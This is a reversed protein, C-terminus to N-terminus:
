FDLMNFLESSYGPSPIVPTSLLASPSFTFPSNCSYNGTVGSGAFNSNGGPGNFVPSLDNLITLCSPDFPFPSFFGPSVPPLISPMPSLIGPPPVQGILGPAPGAHPDFGPDAGISYPFGDLCDDIIDIIPNRIPRPSPTVSKEITALRAAPSTASPGADSNQGTLRQVLSMFDGPKTHIVKPSADYIIVPRRRADSAHPPPPDSSTTAHHPAAPHPHPPPKRIKVSDKSIQLRPPKPGQLQRRPSSRNTPEM